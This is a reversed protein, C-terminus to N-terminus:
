WGIDRSVADKAAEVAEATVGPPLSQVIQDLVDMLAQKQARHTVPLADFDVTMLWDFLVIADQDWLRLDIITPESQDSM